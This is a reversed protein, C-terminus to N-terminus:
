GCVREVQGGTVPGRPQRLCRRVDSSRKMFGFRLSDDLETDIARAIESRLAATALIHVLRDDRM